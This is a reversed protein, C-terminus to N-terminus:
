FNLHVCDCLVILFPLDAHEVWKLDIAPPLPVVELLADSIDIRLHAPSGFLRENDTRHIGLAEETGATGAVLLEALHEIM